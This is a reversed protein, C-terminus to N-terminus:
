MCQQTYSICMPNNANLLHRWWIICVGYFLTLIIKRLLSSEPTKFQVMYAQVHQTIGKQKYIRINFATM